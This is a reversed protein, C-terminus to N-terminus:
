RYRRRQSAMAARATASTVATATGAARHFVVLSVPAALGALNTLLAAAATQVTSVKASNWTSATDQQLDAFPGLYTRGRNARGPIGTKWSVVMSAGAAFPNGANTGTVVGPTSGIPTHPTVSVIEVSDGVRITAATSYLAKIADYFVRLKDIAGDIDATGTSKELYFVNVASDPMGAMTVIASTRYISVAARGTTPRPLLM